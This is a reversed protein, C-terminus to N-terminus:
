IDDINVFITEKNFKNKMEKFGKINVSDWDIFKNLDIKNLTGDKITESQEDPENPEWFKLKDGDFM